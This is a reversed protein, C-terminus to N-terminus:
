RMRDSEKLLKSDNNIGRAALVFALVIISHLISTLSLTGDVFAKVEKAGRPHACECIKLDDM